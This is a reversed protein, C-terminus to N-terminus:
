REAARRLVLADEVPNRYYGRRRGLAAFGRSEYLARAAVNSERVELFVDGAGRASVAALGADLLEGGLGRRRLSPDVALNLIEAEGEIAIAVVYGAIATSDHRAAVLFIAAPSSLLEKFSQASWPDGFSAIEIAEVSSIDALTCPRIATQLGLTRNLSRSWAPTWTDDGM